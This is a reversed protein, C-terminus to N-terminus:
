RGGRNSSVVGETAEEEIVGAAEYVLALAEDDEGCVSGDDNHDRECTELRKYLAKMDRIGGITFWVACPVSLIVNIMVTVQFYTAWVHDSILVGLVLKYHLNIATFVIFWLIHLLSWGIFFFALIKDSKSFEPTIGVFKQWRAKLTEPHMRHEGKISYEGRHLMREMNFAPKGRGTMLSVSVYMIIASLMAIMKLYQGHIPFDQGTLSKYIGPVFVGILGIAAGTIIASYAGSTTGRRWYLGGIIVSGAGGLWIAGTVAFFMLIPQNPPYLLSFVYAFIAVGTIAIRLLRIHEQMSLKKRKITMYVDQVFISGWSHLYTDHCTFSIFIMITCLLGKVGIPLIAAMALPLKMQGQTMENPITALTENIGTLTSAFEPLRFVALAALSMLVLALGQPVARWGAIITGMKQEHPSKASSFFGQSGQWALAAYFTAFVGILYFWINFDTIGGTDFPNLMSRGPTSTLNVATILEDWSFRLYLSAAIVLFAAAAFIGQVCDTIMVSIQGGMTVFSLAMGLDIAMIVPFTPLVLWDVGPILHFSAPLGCYYMIFRAAVAPFVGFNIVGSVFCVMGAFSRFQRGYRMEFFQAMTMARTERFRYLVWGTIAIILSAPLYMAGWWTPAYGARDFVEFNAVITVVGITGM